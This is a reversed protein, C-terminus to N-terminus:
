SPFLIELFKLLSQSCEFYIRHLYPFVPDPSIESDFRDKLYQIKALQINEIPFSIQLSTVRSALVLDYRKAKSSKYGVYQQKCYSVLKTNKILWQQAISFLDSGGEIVQVRTSILTPVGDVIEFRQTLDYVLKTM